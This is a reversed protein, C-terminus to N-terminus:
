RFAAGIINGLINSGDGAAGNNNEEARKEFLLFDILVTTATLLAKAFEDADPPFAITFNTADTLVERCFGGWRKEIAGLPRERAVDKADFIGFKVRDYPACPLNCFMGAQCLEGVVKYITTGPPRTQAWASVPATPGDGDEIPTPTRVDFVFNLCQSCDWPNNIEGLYGLTNHKVRILSRFFPGITCRFPRELTIGDPTDFPDLGAAPAFATPIRPSTAFLVMNFPRASMCLQRILCNSRETYLMLEESCVGERAQQGEQGGRLPDWASVSYRNNQPRPPPRPARTLPRAPPPGRARAARDRARAARGRARPGKDYAAGGARRAASSLRPIAFPRPARPARPRAAGRSRAARVMECGILNLIRVHQKIFVGRLGRLTSLVDVGTAVGGPFPVVGPPIAGVAGPAAVIMTVPHAMPAGYGPAYGPPAGPPPYAGPPAGFPPPPGAYGPPPGGYGVPPPPASAAGGASPPVGNYYQQPPQPPASM